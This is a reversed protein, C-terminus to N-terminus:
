LFDFHIRDGGSLADGVGVDCDLHLMFVLCGNLLLRLERWCVHLCCGVWLLLHCRHWGCDDLMWLSLNEWSVRLRCYNINLSIRRSDNLFHISWYNLFRMSIYNMLMMLLHNMLVVLIDYMLVYLWDYMLMMLWDDILFFYALNMLWHNMLHMPINNMFDIFRNNMLHV